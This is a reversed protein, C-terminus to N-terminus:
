TPRWQTDEGCPNFVSLRTESNFMDLKIDTPSTIDKYVICVQTKNTYAFGFVGMSKAKEYCSKKDHINSFWQWCNSWMGTGVEVVPDEDTSLDNDTALSLDLDQIPIDYKETFQVSPFHALGPRVPECYDGEEIRGVYVTTMKRFYGEKDIVRRKKDQIHSLLAYWSERKPSSWEVIGTCDADQDCALEADSFLTLMQEQGTDPNEILYEYGEFRDHTFRYKQDYEPSMWVTKTDHPIPLVSPYLTLEVNTGVVKLVLRDFRGSRSVLLKDGIHVNVYSRTWNFDMRLQRHNVELLAQGNTQGHIYDVVFEYEPSRLTERLGVIVMEDEGSRQLTCDEAQCVFISDLIHLNM